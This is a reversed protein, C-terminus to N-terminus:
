KWDKVRARQLIANYAGFLLILQLLVITSYIIVSGLMGHRPVFAACLAVLIINSVLLTYIQARFKRIVTLITIFVAVLANLVGGVVMVMLDNKHANFKVAFVLDLLPVGLVYAGAITIVGIICVIILIKSVIRSFEHYKRSDYLETIRVINPQLIFSMILAILTVPMAIIGFYGIQDPHYKDVFFRPTNISFTALFTVIFVPATRLLIKKVKVISERMQDFDIAVTDLKRALRIDYLLFIVLNVAVIALSSLLIDHTIFDVLTFLLFGVSAKYFLSKGARSLRNNIQFVGYVSDAVSEIMKFIVLVIIVANKYLDYNNVWCFIIAGILMGIALIVRATIYHRAQFEQRVDSVQYTRGGWLGFAFLVISVSAAFSFLGSIEIGNVRTIIILLLPSIANQALVGITNWFYDKKINQTDSM